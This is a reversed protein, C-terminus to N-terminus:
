PSVVRYFRTRYNTATRDTFTLSSIAATLNTLDVWPIPNTGLNTTAQIRYSFNTQLTLRLSFGNTSAVFPGSFVASPAPRNTAVVAAGFESTDGGSSTATATFYQGAYNGASNAFAFTANGSGDTTVSVAGAYFQGQGYGSPDSGPNRYVDILFSRNALSNL